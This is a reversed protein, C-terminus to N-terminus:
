KWTAKQRRTLFFYQLSVSRTQGTYTRENEHLTIELKYKQMLKTGTQILESTLERFTWWRM